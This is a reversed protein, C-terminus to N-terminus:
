LCVVTDCWGAVLEEDHTIVVIAKGKKKLKQLLKGVQEMHYHDLGSTPEDLIILEKDALLASAIAVRQKQGGSLSMPHVDAYELLGLTELVEECKKGPCTGLLVEERVSDSFLQYNVDQMVMFSKQLLKRGTMKANKWKIHGNVPKLLGCLTKAFTSKGKGNRGMIGTIEGKCIVMDKVHCVPNKRNYGVELNETQLLVDSNKQKETKIICGTGAMQGMEESQMGDTVLAAKPIQMMKPIQDAKQKVIMVADDLNSARLGRRYLEEMPLARFTENDWAEELAGNEFYLYRDAFDVTWALRHEAIVITTGKAKEKIILERFDEIANKDLNSTPEDLVLLKPALICAAGFAIRQKEGGSLKFISRDLLHEISFQEATRTIRRKIEEPAYGSNECPFALEATTDVNFYQTKPNQFVSGVFPVYAEIQSEGAKLGFGVCEGELTGHFFSPSLGNLIRALTTKGSGSKGCLVVCEGPQIDLNINKLTYRPADGKPEDEYYTGAQVEPSPYQATQDEGSSNERIESDANRYCYFLNRLHVANKM